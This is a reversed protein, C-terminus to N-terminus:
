APRSGRCTAWRRHAARVTPIETPRTVATVARATGDARTAQASAPKSQPAATAASTYRSRASSLDSRDIPAVVHLDHDVGVVHPDAAALQVGDLQGCADSRGAM